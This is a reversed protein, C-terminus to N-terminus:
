KKNARKLPWSIFVALPMRAPQQVRQGLYTYM